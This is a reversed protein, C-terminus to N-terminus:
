CNFSLNFKHLLENEKRRMLEIEETEKDNFKLLHLLGHSIVRFLEVHYEQDFNVSNYRVMDTSIFIDGSIRNNDTSDFTIVDTFYDHNLFQVNINLLYADSCFIFNITGLKYGNDVIESRLIRKAAVQAFVPMEVDEHFFNISM